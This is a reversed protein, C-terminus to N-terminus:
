EDWKGLSLKSNCKKLDKMILKQSNKELSDIKYTSFVNEFPYVVNLESDLIIKVKNIEFNTIYYFGNCSFLKYDEIKSDGDTYDFLRDKKIINGKKYFDFCLNDFEDDVDYKQQFIFYTDKQNTLFLKGIESTYKLNWILLLVGYLFIVIIVSFLIVRKFTKM